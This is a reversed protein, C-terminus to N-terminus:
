GGGPCHMAILQWNAQPVKLEQPHLFMVQDTFSAQKMIFTEQFNEFLNAFSKIYLL